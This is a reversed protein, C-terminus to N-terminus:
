ETSMYTHPFHVALEKRDTRHNQINSKNIKSIDM